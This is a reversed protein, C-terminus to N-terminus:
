DRQFLQYFTNSVIVEFDVFLSHDHLQRALTHHRRNRRIATLSNQNTDANLAQDVIPQIGTNRRVLIYDVQTEPQSLAVSFEYQHPLIFVHSDHLLYIFSFNVADDLLVKQGPRLRQFLVNSIEQQDLQRQRWRFVTGSQPIDQGTIQRWVLSEDPIVWNRNLSNGALYISLILGFVTFWLFKSDVRDPQLLTVPILISFAGFIAVQPLFNNQWFMIILLLIPSVILLIRAVLFNRIQYFVLICLVYYVPLMRGMWVISTGLATLGPAQELLFELSAWRLGNGPAYTFYFPDDSILWNVYLFSAISVFSMFGTVVVLTFKLQLNHGQVCFWSLIMFVPLLFWFEYRLLFLPALTLGLLVLNVSLPYKRDRPNILHWYFLLSLGLFLSVATWTPSTMLMILFAPNIVLLILIIGRWLRSCPLQSGLWLILGVLGTGILVQTSIPSGLLMTLYILFPPFAFGIASLRPDPGQAAIIAKAGIFQFELSLLNQTDLFILIGTLAISVVTGIGFNRWFNPFSNMVM